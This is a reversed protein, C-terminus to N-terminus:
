FGLGPHQEAEGEARAAATASVGRQLLLTVRAEAGEGHASGGGGGRRRGGHSMATDAATASGARKDQSADSAVAARDSRRVLVCM